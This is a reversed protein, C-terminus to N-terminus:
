EPTSLPSGTTGLRYGVRSESFIYTPRQADDGLKGRLRKVMTRVAAPGVPRGPGWARRVLQGHSLVRGPELSLEVLLNHETATLRIRRGSVSVLRQGYDISLDGLIFPEAPESQQYSPGNLAARTRAVLETPSFPKVMYDMAGSRFAQAIVEDRGYASLSIVPVQSTSLIDKMLEIGDTEPLMLDLLVLHPKVEEMLRAVEEPDGTVTPAYGAESLTQQVYRLTQPDGDVVLIRTRDDGTSGRRSYHNARGTASGSEAPDVAPLTFTFRTGLGPGDSEAWIRGGHAEVVGKCIALGLGTGEMERNVSEGEPRSFKRFLHPLFEASVRRDQDTVSIAVHPAEVTASIQIPASEHSYEAANQLLNTIVQVIRRRDAMVWPLDPPLDISINGRGGGSLFAQRAEDVLSSAVSPAPVVPLTGTEIRAVDLLDSILDSMRNAQEEIIGILQVAEAPDLKSLSERLTTASGKISTLPARLEHSVMALFGARLRELDELATLDQATVVFSDVDGEESYIPTANVLVAVSRGDPVQLAIEEARVTEGSRLAKILPFQRLSIERGDARRFTIEELLQEASGDPGLLAGVIRRAERNISVMEGTKADFVLVGIPSTNVLTELDAKARQEERYRRANAIVMGAQSAFMVLTEEDERTYEQGGEGKTLYINGLVEDRNRIPVTLFSTVVVPPRFEPLGLSKLLNALDPTRLPEDMRILREFIDMGEPMEWLAKHEDATIGSVVFEQVEGADDLITIGGYRSGTLARASDVVDQLVDGFDLSKNIRLSAESLKTLRDRLGEIEKDRSSDGSM